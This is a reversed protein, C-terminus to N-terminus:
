RGQPLNNKQEMTLPASSGPIIKGVDLGTVNTPMSALPEPVPFGRNFNHYTRNKAGQSNSSSSPGSWSQFVGTDEKLLSPAVTFTKLWLQSDITSWKLSKNTAAKQRFKIDYVCWGLGKVLLGERGWDFATNDSQRANHHM